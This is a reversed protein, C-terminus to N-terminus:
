QKERNSYLYIVLFVNAESETKALMVQQTASGFDGLKWSGSSHRLLNEIKIDACPQSLLFLWSGRHIIHLSHLHEVAMCLDLFIRLVEDEKM